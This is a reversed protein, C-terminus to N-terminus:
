SLLRTVFRVRSSSRHDWTPRLSRSRTSSQAKASFFARLREIVLGELNGAPIRWGRSRSKRTGTVLSTTAARPSHLSARARPKATRCELIGKRNRRCQTGDGGFGWQPPKALPAPDLYPKAARIPVCCQRETRVRLGTREPGPGRAGAFDEPGIVLPDFGIARGDAGNAVSTWDKRGNIHPSARLSTEPKLGGLGVM